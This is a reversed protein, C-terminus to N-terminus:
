ASWRKGDANVTLSSGPQVAGFVTLSDATRVSVPYASNNVIRTSQNSPPQNPLTLTVPKFAEATVTVTTQRGLIASSSITLSQPPRLQEQLGRVAQAVDQSLRDIDQNGTRRDQFPVTVPM